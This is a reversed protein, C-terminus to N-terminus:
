FKALMRAINRLRAAVAGKEVDLAATVRSTYEAIHQATADSARLLEFEGQWSWARVFKHRSQHGKDILQQWVHKQARTAFALDAKIMPMIQLLHLHSNADAMLAGFLDAESLAHNLGYFDIVGGQELHHKLLWTAAQQAEPVQLADVLQNAFDTSQAQAQYIDLLLVTSKGDWSSIAHAFDAEM